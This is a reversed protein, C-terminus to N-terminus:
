RWSVAEYELKGKRLSSSIQWAQLLIARRYSVRRGSPVHAFTTLMRQEFAAILKRRGAETLLTAGDDTRFSAETLTQHRLLSLVTTDVILARFEEILDLALSPRQDDDLHLHGLSPELGAIVLASVAEALLLSYGFSLASNVPDPAPRHRRGEFKFPDPVLSAFGKWYAAAAAGEYGRLIEISDASAIESHFRECSKAGDLAPRQNSRNGYRLLLARSNVIKGGVISRVFELGFEESTNVQARLLRASPRRSDVLSGAYAGRRTLFTVPINERLAFARAGSSLSTSGYIAISGVLSQPVSLLDEDNDSVILQGQEIRVVGGDRCVYLARRDPEQIAPTTSPPYRTSIEEGLFAFGDDFSMVESKEENLGLELGHAVRRLTDLCEIAENEDQVAIAMDDAYRVVAFGREAMARDLRDLYLNSLLPSLPSGQPIGNITQHRGESDDVPRELLQIVLQVLAQDNITRQLDEVLRERDIRNFCDRLDARVVHHCGNDRQDILASIADRVGMGRRYAFSWPSLLKDIIPGIVQAISREVVRDNVRPIHLERQSGDSKDIEFARLPQPQYKGNLLEHSLEPLRLHATDAFREISPALRGDARDNTLVASWAIQLNRLQAVEELLTHKM